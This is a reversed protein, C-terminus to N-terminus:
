PCSQQEYMNQYSKHVKISVTSYSLRNNHWILAACHKYTIKWSTLLCNYLGIYTQVFSTLLNCLSITESKDSNKWYIPTPIVSMSLLLVVCTLYCSIIMINKTNEIALLFRFPHRVCKRRCLSTCNSFLLLSFVYM